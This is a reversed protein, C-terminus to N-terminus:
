HNLLLLLPLEGVTRHLWGLLQALYLLELTLTAQTQLLLVQLEKVKSM